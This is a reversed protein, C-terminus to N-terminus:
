VSFEIVDKESNHVFRNEKFLDSRLFDNVKSVSVNKLLSKFESNNITVKQILASSNNGNNTSLNQHFDIKEKVIKKLVFLMLQSDDTGYELYKKLMQRMSSMVSYKQTQIFSLIGVKMARNIDEDNVYERLHMKAFAESMRIISEVHRVTIPISNTIQSEKRLISYMKSIKDKNGQQFKPHCKQRAYIIYKQLFESDFLKLNSSRSQQSKSMFSDRESQSTQPHAALHSDCVFAALKRDEVPDYKDQVVCLVDFRSLIPESLDVNDM